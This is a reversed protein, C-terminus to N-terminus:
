PGVVRPRAERAARDHCDIRMSAALHSNDLRCAMRGAYEDVLATFADFSIRKSSDAGKGRQLVAAALVDHQVSDQVEIQLSLDLIDYKDMFDQVAKVGEAVVFGIPTYGLVNRKKKDIRLDTVAVRVYVADQAPVDVLSYGREELAAATTERVLRSIAALDAPKAGRYPSDGAFFIEPQDLLVERYRALIQEQEPVVYVYDWGGQGKVPQLAGYDSLFTQGAWSEQAPAPAGTSQQAFAAPLGLCAAVCAAVLNRLIGNTM